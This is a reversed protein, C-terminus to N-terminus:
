NGPIHLYGASRVAEDGHILTAGRIAIMRGQCFM